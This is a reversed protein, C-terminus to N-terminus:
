ATQLARDSRDARAARRLADTRALGIALLMLTSPFLQDFSLVDFTAMTVFLTVAACMAGLLLIQDEGVARTYMSFPRGSVVLLFGLLVVLGLVGLEILQTLYANDFIM